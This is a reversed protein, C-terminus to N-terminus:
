IKCQSLSRKANIDHMRYTEKYIKVSYPVFPPAPLLKIEKLPLMALHARVTYEIILEIYLPYVLM